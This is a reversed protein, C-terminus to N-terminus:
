EKDLDVEPLQWQNQLVFAQAEYPRNLVVEGPMQYTIRISYRDQPRTLEIRSPLTTAGGEGFPQPNRYLVDTVLQGVDDFTQLRALRIGESRDFWFRRLLRAENGGNPSAEDILYYARVVRSNRKAKPRDDAEEQFFESRAYTFGSGEAAVPRVLLADTFHQPRLGSLASVTRQQNRQKKKDNGGCDDEPMNMKLREYVASNTGQVFRRYREEGQLVAVRFREGDSTMEAIKTGVFPAKISVYVQGPRQVVIDGDATSYREAVGCKAFSTDLFQVDVKGKISHVEAFRNIQALLQATEATGTPAVLSPVVVQRKIFRDPLSCGSAVLSLLCVALLFISRNRFFACRLVHCHITLLIPM